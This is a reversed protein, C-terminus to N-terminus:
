PPPSFVFEHYEDGRFPCKTEKGVREEGVVMQLISELYGKLVECQLPHVKFNKVRVISHKQETDAEIIELEGVTYHKRWINAVRGIVKEVSFFYKAVLRVILSFKASFRGLERFKEPGYNFVNKIAEITVAQYSIPFFDMGKIEGYKIPYGDQEMTKELKELGEKGEEKLVFDGYAKLTTGRIEGPLEEFKKLTGESAM